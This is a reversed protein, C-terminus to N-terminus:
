RIYSLLASRVGALTDRALAADGAIELGTIRETVLASAWAAPAGTAQALADRQDDRAAIVHDGDFLLLGTIRGAPQEITWRMAQGPKAQAPRAVLPALAHLVGHVGEPDSIEVDDWHRSEWWTSLVPMTAVPRWRDNLAYTTSRPVTRGVIRHVVKAEVLPSLRRYLTRRPIPTVALELAPPDLPRDALALAQVVKVAVPDALTGLATDVAVTRREPQATAPLEAAHTAIRDLLAYLNFLDRGAPSLAWLTPGGHGTSREVAVAIGARELGRLRDRVLRPTIGPFPHETVAFAEGGRSSAEGLTLLIARTPADALLAIASRSRRSGSKTSPRSLEM